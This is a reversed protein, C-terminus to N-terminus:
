DALFRHLMVHRYTEGPLLVPDPWGPTGRRNVADPYLQTELCFGGHKEYVAGGKGTLTGDLFNGTYFQIGPMTTWIEMRRGSEPDAAVAARRLKGDAGDLVFNLDYGGPDDGAPPLQDIDAGITKADTFDFPTGAVPEIAGTPILTGDAPTYRSAELALTQELVDGADHGALNWYSHHVINAPTAADCTATMEVRLTNADTLVYDVTVDLTGPYGEEGDPSRYWLRVGVGHDTEIPESDWVVKDFRKEGGHLHNPGNNTALQYTRGDLEFRGGAIRNGVRGVTAGFYPHGALYGDLSEFGLVVDATEGDADPVHLETVIGGYNTIRAVMGRGNDLTYLRVDKGDATGWQEEMVQMTATGQCGTGVLALGLLVLYKM